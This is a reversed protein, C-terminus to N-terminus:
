GKVQRTVRGLNGIGSNHNQTDHTKM